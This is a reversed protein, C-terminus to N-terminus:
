ARLRRLEEGPVPAEASAENIRELLRFRVLSKLRYPQDDLTV